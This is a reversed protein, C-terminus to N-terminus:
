KGLRLTVLPRLWLSFPRIDALCIEFPIFLVVLFYNKIGVYRSAVQRCVSQVVVGGGGGFFVGLVPLLTRSELVFQLIASFTKEAPPVEFSGVRSM